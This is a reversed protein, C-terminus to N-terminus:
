NGSDSSDDNSYDSLEGFASSHNFTGSSVRRPPRNKRNLYETKGYDRYQSLTGNFIQKALDLNKDSIKARSLAYLIEEDSYSEKDGYTSLWPTLKNAIRKLNWNRLAKLLMIQEGKASTKVCTVTAILLKNEGLNGSYIGVFRAINRTGINVCSFDITFMLKFHGIKNLQSFQVFRLQIINHSM